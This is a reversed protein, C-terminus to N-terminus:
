AGAGSLGRDNVTERAGWVMVNVLGPLLVSMWDGRVTLAVADEPSWTVKVVVVGVMQVEPPVAPAVIVSTAAPMQVTFASWAPLAVNLGAGDTSRLKVTLRTLWDIVNLAIPFRVITCVGNVTDALAEDPKATVKVDVVVLTQVVLPAVPLM